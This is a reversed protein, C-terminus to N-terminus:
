GHSQDRAPNPKTGQFQVCGSKRLLVCFVNVPIFLLLLPVYYASRGHKINPNHRLDAVKRQLFNQVSLAWHSTNLQHSIRINEFGAAALQDYLIAAAFQYTHRPVHNGGWYRGFLRREFSDFGPVEGVLHGGPELLEFARALEAPPNLTHELYNNMSIIGFCDAPSEYDAFTGAFGPIGDEELHAIVQPNFDIGVLHKVGMTRLDRLFDGQGCGVDLVRTDSDVLRSMKRRFMAERAAYLISFLAGRKEGTAYGHYDIDYALKLDPLEPFPHLQVGHCQRCECYDYEGDVGYEWDRIGASLTKFVQHQCFNCRYDPIM